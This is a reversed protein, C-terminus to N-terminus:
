LAAAHDVREVRSFVFAFDLVFVAEAVRQCRMTGTPRAARRSPEGWWEAALIAANGTLAAAVDM